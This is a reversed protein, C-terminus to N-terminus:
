EGGPTEKMPLRVHGPTRRWRRVIRRPVASIVAIGLETMVMATTWGPSIHAQPAYELTAVVATLGMGTGALRTSVEILRDTHGAPVNATGEVNVGAGSVKFEVHTHSAEETLEKTPFKLEPLGGGMSPLVSGQAPTTDSEKEPNSMTM